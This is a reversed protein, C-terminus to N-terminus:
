AAAAAVVEISTDHEGLQTRTRCAVCIRQSTDSFTEAAPRHSATRLGFGGPWGQTPTYFFLKGEVQGGTEVLSFGLCARQGCSGGAAGDM